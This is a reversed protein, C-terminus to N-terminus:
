VDRAATLLAHKSYNFCNNSVIEDIIDEYDKLNAQNLFGLEGIHIGLVPIQKENMRSVASLISGDGGLSIVLDINRIPSYINDFIDNSYSDKFVFSDLLILNDKDNYKKFISDFIDYFDNKYKNGTCLINM